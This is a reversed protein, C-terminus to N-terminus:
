IDGTPGVLDHMEWLENHRERIADGLVVYYSDTLYEPHCFIYDLLEWEDMGMIDRIEDQNSMKREGMNNASFAILGMATQGLANIPETVAGFRRLVNILITLFAKPTAQGNGM